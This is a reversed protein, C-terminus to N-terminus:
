KKRLNSDEEDLLVAEFLLSRLVERDIDKLRHFTKTYVAKRQGSELYSGDSLRHGQCFGFRVGEKIGAWPVSGPWIFCIRSHRYYFPVNYALRERADPVCHFVISRLQEVLKLEDPPLYNLFEGVTKFSVNQFRNM